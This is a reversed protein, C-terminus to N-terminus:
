KGTLPQLFKSYNEYDLLINANLDTKKAAIVTEISFIRLAESISMTGLASSRRGSFPYVDPSRGCQTNINIRGVVTSLTDVLEASSEASKTFIAAQQGYPTLSIYDYVEQIDDYVAIPIVPGFQEEHWLRMDSTVPFVIAPKVLGDAVNGGGLHENIVSAGKNKADAILDLLFKPKSQQPLPTISVNKEWPLGVVLSAIKEVFKPLFDDVLSKPLFVLKIATCRQGNYTTSGITIQEVATNLDADPLVIGLNKGELQLFLKLKHPHPHAKILEDAAKSGGIFALM